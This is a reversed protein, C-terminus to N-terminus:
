EKEIVANKVTACRHFHRRFSDQRSFKQGCFCCQYPQGIHTTLHRLVGRSNKVISECKPCTLSGDENQNMEYENLKADLAITQETMTDMFKSRMSDPGEVSKFGRLRSRKLAAPGQKDLLEPSNNAPKLKNPSPNPKETATNKEKDVVNKNDADPEKRRRKRVQSVPPLWNAPLSQPALQIQSPQLSFVPAVPGIHPPLPSPIPGIMCPSQADNRRPPRMIVPSPICFVPISDLPTIPSLIWNHNEM